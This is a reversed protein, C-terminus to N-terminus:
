RPHVSSRLGQDMVCAVTATDELVSSIELQSFESPCQIINQEYVRM